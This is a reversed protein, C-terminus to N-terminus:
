AARGMAQSAKLARVTAILSYRGGTHRRGCAAVSAKRRPKPREAKGTPFLRKACGGNPEACVSLTRKARLSEFARDGGSTFYM